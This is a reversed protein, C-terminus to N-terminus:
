FVELGAINIVCKRKTREIRKITVKSEKKKKEKKMQEKLLADPKDDKQPKADSSSGAAPAEPADAVVLKEIAPVVEDPQSAAVAASAAAPASGPWYVPVLDPHTEALWKRCRKVSPGFECYSAVPVADGLAGGALTQCFASCPPRALYLLHAIPSFAPKPCHLIDVVVRTTPGAPPVDAADEDSTHGPADAM